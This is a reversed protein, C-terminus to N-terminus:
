RAPHLQVYGDRHAPRGPDHDHVRLRRHLGDVGRSNRRRGDGELSVEIPDDARIAELIAGGPLAIRFRPRPFSDNIRARVPQSTM